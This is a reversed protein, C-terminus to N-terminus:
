KEITKRTEYIQRAIKSNKRYVDVPWNNSIPRAGEDLEVLEVMAGTDSGRVWHIALQDPSLDGNALALQLGLLLNESHTEVLIRCGPNNSIVGCFLDALNAHADPHLHLEPHELSIVPSTGLDHYQALTLLSVVPLVQGMGEGTDIIDVDILPDANPHLTFRYGIQNGITIENRAFSYGTSKEYWDSIGLIVEDSAVQLLPIIGDARHSIKKVPSTQTHFRGPVVCDPALSFFNKSFQELKEALPKLYRELKKSFVVPVLGDFVVEQDTISGNEDIFAYRNQANEFPQAYPNWELVVRDFTDNTTIDIRQIIQAKYKEYEVVTFLVDFGDFGLSFELRPSTNYKSLLGKFNSGRAAESGLNIPAVSSGDTSDSVLKFFRLAASKGASNYGFFLTIPRILFEAERNFAKYNKLSFNHITM